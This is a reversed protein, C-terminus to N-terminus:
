KVLMIKQNHIDSGVQTQIFYVGSPANTGDWTLNYSGKTMQGSAVIDMLQGNMNFVKVSIDATANLALSIQTTPNFPNPYAEGIRYDAIDAISTNISSSGDATAIVSEISFASNATFLNNNTPDVIIVTTKTGKTSFASFQGGDTLTLAFNDAHSLTMQVGGVYGNASMTVENENVNFTASSAGDVRGTGMITQVVAVVDLVNLSGDSNMDGACSPINSSGVNGNMCDSNTGCQGTLVLNVLTVVDVVNLGGSGDMDGTGCGAGGVEVFEAIVERAEVVPVCPVDFDFILRGGASPNASDYDHDSDNALNAAHSQACLGTATAQDNGAQVQALVCGNFAAANATYFGGWYTGFNDPSMVYGTNSSAVEDVAAGYATETLDGYIPVTLGPYGAGAMYATNMFSSPIGPVGIQRDFWSGDNDEDVEEDDRYGLGSSAGDVGHWELYFDPNVDNGPVATTLDTANLGNKLFFGGSYGTLEVGGPIFESIGLANVSPYVDVGCTAQGFDVDTSDCSGDFDGITFNYCDAAGTQSNNGTPSCISPNTPVLPYDEFTLSGSLGLGGLQSTGIIQGTNPDREPGYSSIGPIGLVNIGPHVIGADAMMTASSTYTFDDTVPLVQQLTICTGNEDVITNVDPYYSGAAISGSGDSNLQVNLNIGVGALGDNSLIMPQTTFPAAAPINSLEQTIGLDANTATLSVAERSVYTYLVNVGTLKYSGAADQAIMASVTLFLLM